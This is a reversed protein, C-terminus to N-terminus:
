FDARSHSMRSISSIVTRTWTMLPLLLPEEEGEEEVEVEGRLLAREEVAVGVEVVGDAAAVRELGAMVVAVVAVM